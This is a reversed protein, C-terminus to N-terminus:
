TNWGPFPAPDGPAPILPKTWAMEKALRAVADDWADPDWGEAASGVTNDLRVYIFAPVREVGLGKVATGEPDLFCLGTDADAGLVRRASRENGIVLFAPRCDSGGLVQAIRRGVRVWASAEPRGPLITLALHFSTTWGDITRTVGRLTTLE